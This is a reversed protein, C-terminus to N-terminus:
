PAPSRRLLAEIEAAAVPKGFLYGQCQDCRHLRLLQAQEETEVGEAVVIRNLSHTLTIIMQVISMSDVDEELNRIFARDIKIFTVPLRGIYALSSYGTGFDDVALEVGLGQVERLKAVNAEMDHMMVSETVELDLGHPESGAAAIAAKVSHVFDQQRLQVPSVNVSIRLPPLGKARLAAATRVAELMAWAGAEVILGTEELLPIFQMPPALGFEPDQWRMLAELGVIGGTRLDVKPQYHLVFEGRQMAGRLRSELHLTQAVSANMQSEYFQYKQGGVRVAERLAAEANRYLSDGDAGDAPYVAIGAQGCLQLAKGGTDFPSECMVALFKEVIRGIEAGHDLRRTAIAFCNAGVHALLETEGAAESLRRALDRLVADAVHRGFAENINSFRELDIRIIACLKRDQRAAVLRQNVREDFLVRNPLDTLADHSAVYALREEKEMSELAFSVDGALEALLKMLEEDFHNPEGAYFGIVGVAADRVLLPLMALSRYGRALAQKKFAVQPDMETDNIVIPQKERLARGSAGHDLGASHLAVGVEDLYGHEAGAWSVPRVKGQEPEALGIWTMLFRGEEVAIRCAERFLQERNRIRVIASNIGSQVARMRSLQAIKEEHNIRETVDRVVATYLAGGNESRKSIGVEASFITGDKRMGHLQSRGAMARSADPGLGFNRVHQRHKEASKPPLLIELPKGIVEDPHYGFLNEAGANFIVICQNQDVSIIGDAAMYLVERYRANAKLKDAQNAIGEIGAAAINAFVSLMKAQPPSFVHRRTSNINLTGIVRNRTLMPVSLASKIDSRPYKPAFREDKIEGLLLLPERQAVVWGAIGEDRPVRSGLLPVRHKGRVAVVELSRGDDTLLMVSAEDANFQSVAADVILELMANPELGQTLALNLRRIVQTDLLQLNDRRLRRVELARALAPLVTPLRVPKLVYDFAGADIGKVATGITAEETMLIGVLQPDVKTAAALLTAGDMGPMLLDALLLDFQAKHLAKLADDPKTCGTVDYGHDRLAACLADLQAAEDDVILIRAPPVTNM